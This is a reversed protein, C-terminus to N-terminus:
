LHRTTRADAEATSPTEVGRCRPCIGSFELRHELVEYGSQQAVREDLIQFEVEVDCVRGCERCRVHSHPRTNADFRMQDGALQVRLIEGTRSLVDLNRYVTGLSITPLSKRVRQYVEDATLHGGCRRVEELILRRQRTM